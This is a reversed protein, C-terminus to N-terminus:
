TYKEIFEKLKALVEDRLSGVILKDSSKAKIDKAFQMFQHLVPGPPFQDRMDEIFIGLIEGTVTQDIKKFINLFLDNIIASQDPRMISVSGDVSKEVKDPRIDSSHVSESSERGQVLIEPEYRPYEGQGTCS